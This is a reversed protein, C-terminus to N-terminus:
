IKPTEFSIEATKVLTVFWRNLIRNHHAIIPEAPNLDSDETSHADSVLYVTYGLHSAMRCATDVCYDSQLGCILLNEIHNKQLLEQLQTNRFSDVHTKQVILPNEPIQLEPIFGVSPEKPDFSTGAPGIHQIFITLLQYQEALAILTNINALVKKEEFIPRQAIQVDIVVL